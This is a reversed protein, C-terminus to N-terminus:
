WLQIRAPMARRDVEHCESASHGRYLKHRRSELRSASAKKPHGRTRESWRRDRRLQRNVDSRGGLTPRVPNSRSPRIGVRQVRLFSISSRGGQWPSPRFM